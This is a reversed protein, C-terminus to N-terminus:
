VSYSNELYEELKQRKLMKSAGIWVVYECSPENSMARLKLYGIGTLATGEEVTILAREWIPIPNDKNIKRMM